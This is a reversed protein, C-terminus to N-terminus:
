REREFCLNCKAQDCTSLKNQPVTVPCLNGNRIVVASTWRHHEVFNVSAEEIAIGKFASGVLRAEQPKWKLRDMSSSDVTFNIVMDESHLLRADRHRTYVVPEVTNNSLRKILSALDNTFKPYATAEGVHALRIRAGREFGGETAKAQELLAARIARKTPTELALMISPQLYEDVSYYSALLGNLAGRVVSNPTADLADHAYCGPACLKTPLCSSLPFRVSTGQKKSIGFIPGRAVELLQRASDSDNLSLRASSAISEELITRVRFLLEHAEKAFKPDLSTSRAMSCLRFYQNCEVKFAATLVGPAVSTVQRTMVSITKAWSILPQEVGYLKSRIM